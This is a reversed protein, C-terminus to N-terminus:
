KRDYRWRNDFNERNSCVFLELLLFLQDVLQGLHGPETTKEM